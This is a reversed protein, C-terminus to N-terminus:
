AEFADVVAFDVYADTPQPSRCRPQAQAILRVAEHGIFREGVGRSDQWPQLL